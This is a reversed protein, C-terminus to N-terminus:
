ETRRWISEKVGRRVPLDGKGLSPHMQMLGHAFCDAIDDTKAAPFSCVEYLFDSLWPAQAPLKVRGAEVIGSVANLRSAKDTDAKVPIIPLSTDRRLQQVLSHGSAKHEIYIHTPKWQAYKMKAAQILDPFEVRKAWVDIVYFFQGAKVWTMCASRSSSDDLEFATDWVQICREVKISENVLPNEQDSYYQFWAEKIISGGEPRPYGQYEAAYWYPGIAERVQLLSQRPYMEPWLAEGESRGLPDGPEALAPLNIVEWPDRPLDSEPKQSESILYGALDDEHWRTQLLIISANPQARTRFTSRYWQKISERYVLSLAEKQSKIPDDIICNHVLIGNAFFNHNGGVQLNYVATAKRLREVMVVTDIVLQKGIATNIEQSLNCVPYGSQFRCQEDALQRSPSCSTKVSRWMDFLCSQRQEIRAAENDSFGKGFTATRKISNGREEMKSQIQRVDIPFAWANCLAQQLLYCIEERAVKGPIYCQVNSVSEHNGFVQGKPRSTSASMGRLIGEDKEISTKWLSQVASPKQNGYAVSLMQNFLLLSQMRQNIIQESRIRGERIGKPVVCLLTDGSALECAKKYGKTTWIPHQETAEVVRGSATTIRYLGSAKRVSFAEAKQWQLESEDTDYSLIKCSLPAFQLTEIAQLGINTDIQTGAPFCLDGGHGTIPGMVGSSLMGGGYGKIRWQSKSRTDGALQIELRAEHEIIANRVVGGWEAAFGGQYSALIIHKYPWKKLFWIPTWHSILESKGHRPPITIILFIPHDELVRIKNSLFALHRYRRWRGGSLKEALSAPDRQWDSDAVERGIHASMLVSKPYPM